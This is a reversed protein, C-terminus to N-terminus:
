GIGNAGGGNAGYFKDQLKRKIDDAKANYEKWKKERKAEEEADKM